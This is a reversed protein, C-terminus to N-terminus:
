IYNSDGILRNDKAEALVKVKEFRSMEKLSNLQRISNHNTLWAYSFQNFCVCHIKLPRNQILPLADSKGGYFLFLCM